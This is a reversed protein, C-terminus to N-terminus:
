AGAKGNAANKQDIIPQEHDVCPAAAFAVQEACWAAPDLHV